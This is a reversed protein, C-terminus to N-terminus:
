EELEVKAELAWSLSLGDKNSKWSTMAPHSLFERRKKTGKEEEQPTDAGSATKKPQKYLLKNLTDMKEEELKRESLNKRRRALETRKLAQEEQSLIKQQRSNAPLQLFNENSPGKEDRLMSKQRNTMRDPDPTGQDNYDLFELEESDLESEPDEEVEEDAEEPEEEEVEEEVEDLDEEDDLVRRKKTRVPRDFDSDSLDQDYGEDIESLESSSM